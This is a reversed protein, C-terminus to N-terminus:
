TPTVNKMFIRVVIVFPVIKNLVQKLELQKEYKTAFAMKASVYKKLLAHNM